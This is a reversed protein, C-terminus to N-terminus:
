PFEYFRFEFQRLVIGKEKCFDVLKGIKDKSIKETSVIIELVPHKTLIEDLDGVSGLVPCGYALRGIKKPDDDIFGIPAFAYSHHRRIEQIVTSAMKGAGYILVRKEAQPATRNYVGYIVRYSIRFGIIFTLTFYFDLIFFISGFAKM